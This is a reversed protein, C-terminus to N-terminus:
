DYPSRHAPLLITFITGRTIDSDVELSGKHLGIIAKALPLGLGFGEYEKSNGGRYFPQFIKQIEERAIVNGKNSITIKIKNKLYSLQVVSLKDTSYKCGNEMINKFASCLLEFNGFVLCEHENKPLKKFQMEVRYGLNMKKLESAIKLLVEDVRVESLEIDGQSDAKAIELLTKTLQRMQLVDEHISALVNQYETQTREKQLAVELQSSISTLPTSLEHSANSIFRRQTQFSNQLRKLLENFTNALQHLEDKGNGAEIRHFLNNSSIDNVDYIIQSIPALLKKSFLSGAIVSLMMAVFLGIILFQLLKRLGELGEKDWAAVVVIFSKYRGQYKRAV